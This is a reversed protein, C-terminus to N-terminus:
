RHNGIIVDAISLPLTVIIVVALVVAMMIGATVKFARNM